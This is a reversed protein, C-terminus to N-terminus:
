YLLIITNRKPNKVNYTKRYKKPLPYINSTNSVLGYKSTKINKYRCLYLPPAWLSPLHESVKSVELPDGKWVPGQASPQRERCHAVYWTRPSGYWPPASRGPVAPTQPDGQLPSLPRPGRQAACVVPRASPVWHGYGCWSAHGASTLTSPIYPGPNVLLAKAVAQWRTPVKCYAESGPLAELLRSFITM